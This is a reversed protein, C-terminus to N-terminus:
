RPFSLADPLLARDSRTSAENVWHPAPQSDTVMVFTAPAWERVVIMDGSFYQNVVSGHSM